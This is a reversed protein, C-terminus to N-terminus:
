HHGGPGGTSGPGIGGPGCDELGAALLEKYITQQASNLVAYLGADATADALAQQTAVAGIANAAASIGSNAEIATTLATQAAALNTAATQDAAVSITFLSTATAAQASTLTLLKTLRAVRAAVIEAVTQTTATQAALLSSVALIIAATKFVKHM